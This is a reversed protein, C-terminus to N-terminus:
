LVVNFEYILLSYNYRRHILSFLYKKFPNIKINWKQRIDIIVCKSNKIM